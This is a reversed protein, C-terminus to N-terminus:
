LRDGLSVEGMVVANNYIHPKLWKQQIIFLDCFLLITTFKGNGKPM